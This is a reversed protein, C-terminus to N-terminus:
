SIADVALPVTLAGNFAVKYAAAVPMSAPRFPM